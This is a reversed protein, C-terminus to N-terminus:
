VFERSPSPTLSACAPSRLPSSLSNLESRFSFGCDGTAWSSKRLARCARRCFHLLIWHPHTHSGRSTAATLMGLSGELVSEVLTIKCTLFSPKDGSARMREHQPGM